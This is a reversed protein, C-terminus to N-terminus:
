RGDVFAMPPPAAAALAAARISQPAPPPPTSVNAVVSAITFHNMAATPATRDQSRIRASLKQSKRRMARSDHHCLAPLSLPLTIHDGAAVFCLKAICFGLVSVGVLQM